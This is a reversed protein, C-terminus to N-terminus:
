RKAPAQQLRDIAAKLTAEAESGAEVRPLLQQWLKRAAARDGREAAAAGALFLALGDEPDKGLAESLLTTAQGAFSGDRSALVEAYEALLTASAHAKNGARAFADAARTNDGLMRYSRALMLWGEQNDPQKQLREALQEISRAMAAPDDPPRRNAPNLALPNGLWAYGLLTLLPLAIALTWASRHSLCAPTSPLPPATKSNATTTEPATPSHNLSENAVAVTAITTEATQAARQRLSHRLWLGGGLLFLLPGLWLLATSAKFPPRYRVFDGYRAVMFDLIDQDSKGDAIMTRIERRLDKALDARSASLSENQCVLCRLEDAIAVLRAEVAPSAKVEETSLEARLPSAQMLTLLLLGLLLGKWGAASPTPLTLALTM